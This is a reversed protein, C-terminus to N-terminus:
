FTALEYGDASVQGDYTGPPVEIQYYGSTDTLTSHGGVQVLAGGIPDGTEADTVYGFLTANPIVTPTLAIDLQRQEGPSLTIAM